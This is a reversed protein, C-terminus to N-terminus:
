LAQRCNLFTCLHISRGDDLFEPVVAVDQAVVAHAVAVVDLLEGIQQEQLHGVLAALAARCGPFGPAPPSHSTRAQQPPVAVVKEVVVAVGQLLQALLLTQEPQDEALRLVFELVRGFQPPQDHVQDVLFGPHRHAGIHLAVGVLAQQLLVRLVGLGARALVERRTRQDLGDDIDHRGPGALGDGVRGAAGAAKQQRRVVIHHLVVGVHGRRLLLFQAPFAELAPLQHLGGGPQARHVHQQVADAALFELRNGHAIRQGGVGARAEVHHQGIRGEALLAARRNDSFLALDALFAVRDLAVIEPGGSRVLLEIEDLVHLRQQLLIAARGQHQRVVHQELAAGAFRYAPLQQVVAVDVGQQTQGGAQEVGLAHLRVHQEEVLLGGGFGRPGALQPDVVQAGVHVECQLGVRQLAFVQVLEYLAVVRRVPM